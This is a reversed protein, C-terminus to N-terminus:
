LLRVGLWRYLTKIKFYSFWFYFYLLDLWINENGIHHRNFSLNWIIYPYISLYIPIFYFNCTLTWLNRMSVCKKERYKTFLYKMFVTYFAIKKLHKLYIKFTNQLDSFIYLYFTELFNHIYKTPRFLHNFIFHYKLLIYKM